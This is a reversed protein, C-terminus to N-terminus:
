LQKKGASVTPHQHKVAKLWKVGSIWNHPAVIIQIGKGESNPKNQPRRWNNRQLSRSSRYKLWNHHPWVPRVASIHQIKHQLPASVCISKENQLGIVAYIRQREEKPADSRQNSWCAVIIRNNICGRHATASTWLSSPRFNRRIGYSEEKTCDKRYKKPRAM